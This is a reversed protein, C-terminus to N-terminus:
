MSKPKLLLKLIQDRATKARRSTKVLSKKRPKLDNKSGLNGRELFTTQAKDPSFQNRLFIALKEPKATENCTFVDIGAYGLIPYVIVNLHGKKCPIIYSYVSNKEDKDENYYYNKPEMLFTEAAEQLITKVVDPDTVINELCGYLDIAIQTGKFNM